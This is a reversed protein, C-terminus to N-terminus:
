LDAFGGTNVTWTHQCKICQYTRYHPKGLTPNNSGGVVVEVVQVSDCGMGSRCKMHIVNQKKAEARNTLGPATGAPDFRDSM